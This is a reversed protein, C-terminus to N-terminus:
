IFLDDMTVNIKFRSFAHIIMDAHHTQLRRKGTTIQHLLPYTIDSERALWALTRQIDPRDLVKKIQTQPIIPTEIRPRAM